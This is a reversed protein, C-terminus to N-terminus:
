NVVIELLFTIPFFTWEVIGFPIISYSWVSKRVGYSEFRSKNSEKLERLCVDMAKRAM